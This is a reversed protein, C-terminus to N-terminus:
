DINCGSSQIANQFAGHLIHQNCRGIHITELLDKNILYDDLNELVNWNFSPCDM